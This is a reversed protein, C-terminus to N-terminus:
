NILKYGDLELWQSPIVPVVSNRFADDEFNFKEVNYNDNIYEAIYGSDIVKLYKWVKEGLRFFPVFGYCKKNRPDPVFENNKIFDVHEKIEPKPVLEVVMPTLKPQISCLPELLIARRDEDCVSNLRINKTIYNSKFREEDPINFKEEYEKITQACPEIEIVLVCPARLIAKAKNYKLTEELTPVPATEVTTELTTEV